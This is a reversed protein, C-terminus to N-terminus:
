NTPLVKPNEVVPPPQPTEPTEPTPTTVRPPQRPPPVRPGDEPTAGCVETPPLHQCPSAPPPLVIVPRLAEPVIGGAHAPVALLSAIIALRLM